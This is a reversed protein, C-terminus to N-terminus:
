RSLQFNAPNFIAVVQGSSRDHMVLQNNKVELPHIWNYHNNPMFVVFCRKKGTEVGIVPGKFISIFEYKGLTKRSSVSGPRNLNCFEGTVWEPKLDAFRKEGAAFAGYKELWRSEPTSPPGKKVYGYMDSRTLRSSVHNLFAERTGSLLQPDYSVDYAQTQYAGYIRSVYQKKNLVDVLYFEQSEMSNGHRTISYLVEPKQDKNADSLELDDFGMNTPDLVELKESWVTAYTSGVKRAVTVTIPGDKHPQWAYAVYTITGVKRTVAQEVVGGYQKKVEKVTAPDAQAHCLVVPLVLLAKWAPKM